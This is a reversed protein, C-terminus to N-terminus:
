GSLYDIPNEYRRIRELICTWNKENEVDGAKRSEEVKRLAQLSADGGWAMMNLAEIKIKESSFM